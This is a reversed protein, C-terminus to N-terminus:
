SLPASANKYSVLAPVFNVWFYYVLSSCGDYRMVWPCRRALVPALTQGQRGAGSRVREVDM